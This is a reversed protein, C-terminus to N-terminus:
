GDHRCVDDLPLHLLRPGHATAQEGGPLLAAVCEHAPFLAPRAGRPTPTVTPM